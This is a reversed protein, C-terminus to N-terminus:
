VNLSFIIDVVRQVERFRRASLRFTVEVLRDQPRDIEFALHSPTFEILRLRFHGAYRDPDHTELYCVGGDEDEFQRQLLVYPRMPADPDYDAAPHENGFSVEFYLDDFDSVTVHRAHLKVPVRRTSSIRHVDTILPM